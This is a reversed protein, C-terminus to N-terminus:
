LLSGFSVVTTMVRRCLDNSCTGGDYSGQGCTVSAPPASVPGLGQWAVTIMYTNNGLDAVCGRGGIFAGVKSGGSTESAGQLANSWECSDQVQRTSSSSYSCSNGTGLSSNSTAYSAANNRNAELRSAMDNLLVLAQSRQYSEVESIQMRAQLGVVGLIGFALIVITVLVEIM